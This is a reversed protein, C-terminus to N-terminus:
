VTKLERFVDASSFKQMYNIPQWSIATVQLREKKTLKSLDKTIKEEETTEPKSSKM